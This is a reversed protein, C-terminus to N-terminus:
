DHNDYRIGAYDRRRLWDLITGEGLDWKSAPAALVNALGCFEEVYNHNEDVRELMYWDYSERYFFVNEENDEERLLVDWGDEFANDTEEKEKMTEFFVRENESRYHGNMSSFLQVDEQSLQNVKEKMNNSNANRSYLKLM